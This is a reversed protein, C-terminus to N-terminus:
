KGKAISLVKLKNRQKKSLLVSQCEHLFKQWGSSSVNMAKAFNVISQYVQANSEM